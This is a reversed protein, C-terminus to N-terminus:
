AALNTIIIIEPAEGPKKTAKTRADDAAERRARAGFGGGGGGSRRYPTWLHLTPADRFPALARVVEDLAAEPQSSRTGRAHVVRYGAPPADGRGIDVHVRM